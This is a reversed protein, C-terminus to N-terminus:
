RWHAPWGAWIINAPDAENRCYSWGRHFPKWKRLRIFGRPKLYGNAPDLKGNHPVFALVTQLHSPRTREDHKAGKEGFRPFLSFLLFSERM